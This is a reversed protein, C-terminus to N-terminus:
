QPRLAADGWAYEISVACARSRVRYAATRDDDVAAHAVVDPRLRGEATVRQRKETQRSGTRSEIVV